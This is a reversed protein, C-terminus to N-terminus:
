KAAPANGYLIDQVKKLSIELLEAITKDSYGKGHMRAALEKRSEERAEVRGEARGEERGEVRG